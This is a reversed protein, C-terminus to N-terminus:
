AHGQLPQPLRGLTSSHWGAPSQESEDIGRVGISRNREERIRGIGTSEVLNSMREKRARTAMPAHIFIM